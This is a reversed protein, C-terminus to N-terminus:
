IDEFNKEIEEELKKTNNNDNNESVLHSGNKKSNIAAITGLTMATIVLLKVGPDMNSVGLMDSYDNAVEILIEDIYKDKEITEKAGKLHSPVMMETMGIIALYGYKILQVESQTAERKEIIEEGEIIEIDEINENESKEYIEDYIDEKKVKKVKQIESIETDKKKKRHRCCLGDEDVKMINCEKGSKKNIFKCCIKEKM